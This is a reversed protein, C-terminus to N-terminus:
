RNGSCIVKANKLSLWIHEDYEIEGDEHHEHGGTMEDVIEEASLSAPYYTPFHTGEEVLTDFGDNGSYLHFHEPESPEINHDSFVIYQM